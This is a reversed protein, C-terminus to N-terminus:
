SRYPPAAAPPQVGGARCLDELIAGFHGLILSHHGEGPFWRVEGNPLREALRRAMAPPVVPDALGQWIRVPVRVEELGFDWPRALLTLEWAAGRGGQRLAERLTAALIAGYRADALAARDAAPAGHGMLSPVREPSRRIWWVALRAAFRALPPIRVALALALRSLALMDSLARPGELPGLPAALAVTDLRESLRAACALAYPGGGSVGLIAFRELGLRDALARLDDAWAGLTRGPQFSSQGFGPRDPALLRLGLQAAASAALRAEIRSGPCGHCYIVPRGAPAGLELCALVRGDRLRIRHETEM